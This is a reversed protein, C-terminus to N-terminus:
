STTDSAARLVMTEVTVGPGFSMLVGWDGQTSTSRNRQKRTEDLVFLVTAALMNGYDSLVRRTAALKEPKLQFQEDIRDLLAAMGPHLVWFLENWRPSRSGMGLAKFADSVCREVSEGIIVPLDGHANSSRVRLGSEQLQMLIADETGPVIDQAASVLEFLPREGTVPDAGVVAAAAGDAFCAQTFLTQFYGDQPGAFYLIGVDACVVLVRAGRNSEALDKSLRLAAAGSSCGGLYLMTRRVTTRLGLLSVLRFDVGPVHAGSNTAVVLHTVDTAPRGWEDIAKRAATAALEPVATDVIDLRADLSPTARDLFEPHAELMAEDHYFYRQKTGSKQCIRKFKAKLETHHDCKTIGFYYDPFADQSICCTPNATAIALVTAPGDARM